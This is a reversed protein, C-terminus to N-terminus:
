LYRDKFNRFCSVGMVYLIELPLPCFLFTVYKRLQTVAQTIVFGKEMRFTEIEGGRREFCFCLCFSEKEKGASRFENLGENM